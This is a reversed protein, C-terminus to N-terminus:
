FSFGVKLGFQFLDLDNNYESTVNDYVFSENTRQYELYPGVQLAMNRKFRISAGGSLNGMVGSELKYKVDNYSDGDDFFDESNSGVNFNYGLSVNLYPSVKRDMFRFRAQAYLPIFYNNLTTTNDFYDEFNILQRVGTGIGLGVKPSIHMLGVYDFQLGMLYTDDDDDYSDDYFAVDTNSTAVGFGFSVNNSFRPKFSSQQAYITSCALLLIITLIKKM